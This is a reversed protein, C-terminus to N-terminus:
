LDAKRIRKKLVEELGKKMQSLFFQREALNSTKFLIGTREPGLIHIFDELHAIMNKTYQAKFKRYLDLGMVPGFQELARKKIWSHIVKLACSGRKQYHHKRGELSKAHSIGLLLNDIKKLLNETTEKSSAKPCILQLFETEKLDQWRVCYRKDATSSCFLSKLGGFVTGDSDTNIVDIIVTSPDIKKIDIMLAHNRSCIPIAFLGKEELITWDFIKGHYGEFFIESASKMEKSLNSFFLQETPNLSESAAYCEMEESLALLEKEFYGGALHPNIFSKSDLVASHVRVFLDKGLLLAEKELEHQLHELDEAKLGEKLCLNFLITMKAKDFATKQKSILRRKELAVFDLKEEQCCPSMKSLTKLACSVAESLESGSATELSSCLPESGLGLYIAM